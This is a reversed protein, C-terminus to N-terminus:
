REMGAAAEDNKHKLLYAYVDLTVSPKRHGMQTSVYIVNESRAVLMISAYTHRLGHCRILPLCAQALAPLLKRNVLDTYNIPNGKESPFVLGRKNPPCALKRKKLKQMLQPKLDIQRFSNETKSLGFAGKTFRRRIRIQNNKWDIDKWKLALLEGQRAGSFVALSFLTHYKPNNEAEM